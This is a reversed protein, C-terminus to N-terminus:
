GDEYRKRESRTSRRASIIRITEGRIVFVVYLLLWGKTIGIAAERVEGNKEHETVVHVFPDFFVEWAEEFPVGHKRLNALAKRRDWVFRIGQFVHTVDM